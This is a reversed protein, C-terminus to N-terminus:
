KKSLVKYNSYKKLVKKRNEIVFFNDFNYKDKDFTKRFNNMEIKEELSQIGKTSKQWPQLVVMRCNILLRETTDYVLELSKVSKQTPFSVIIDYVNNRLEITKVVGYRVLFSDIFFHQYENKFLGDKVYQFVKRDSNQDVFLITKNRHDAKYFQKDNCIITYAYSSNYYQNDYQNMYEVGSLSDMEGNPFNIKMHYDHAEVKVDKLEAIIKKFVGITDQTKSTLSFPSIVLFILIYLIKM